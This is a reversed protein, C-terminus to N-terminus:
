LEENDPMADRNKGFGLYRGMPSLGLKRSVDEFSILPRPPPLTLIYEDMTPQGLLYPTTKSDKEDILPMYHTCMHEKESCTSIVVTPVYGQAIAYKHLAPLIKMSFVLCSVFGNTFPFNVVGAKIEPLKTEKFKLKRWLEEAPLELIETKTPPTIKDNYGLLRIRTQPGDLKSKPNGLIYGSAFRLRRGDAIKAPHDLFISYVQDVTDHRLGGGVGEAINREFSSSAAYDRKTTKYIFDGGSFSGSQIDVSSLVGSTLSSYLIAAGMVSCIVIFQLRRASSNKDENMTLEHYNMLVM